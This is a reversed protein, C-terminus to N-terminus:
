LFVRAAPRYAKTTVSGLAVWGPSGGRDSATIVTSGHVSVTARRTMPEGRALSSRNTSENMAVGRRRTASMSGAYPVPRFQADLEQAFRLTVVPDGM